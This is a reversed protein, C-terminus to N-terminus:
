TSFVSDSQIRGASDSEANEVYISAYITNTNNEQVVEEQGCFTWLSVVMDSFLSSCLLWKEQVVVEEQGYFSWLCVVM